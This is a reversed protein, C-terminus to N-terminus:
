RETPGRETPATTAASRSGVSLEVKFGWRETPGRETPATTAASRSGVSLEVKFGWRETPGRETPATTAASRSGVSLEVKFGQAETPALLRRQEGSQFNLGSSEVGGDTSGFGGGGMRAESEPLNSKASRAPIELRGDGVEGGGFFTRVGRRPTRNWNRCGVESLGLGLRLGAAGRWGPYPQRQLAV